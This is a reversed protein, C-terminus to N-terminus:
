AVIRWWLLVPYQECRLRQPEDVLVMQYIRIENM